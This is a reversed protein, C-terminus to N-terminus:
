AAHHHAPAAGPPHFTAHHWHQRPAADASQWGARRLRRAILWNLSGHGVFLVPGATALEILRAACRDARQRGETCSEVTEGPRGAARWGALWLLRFLVAWLRASLAPWRWGAAPMALERFRPDAHHASVGLAAASTLSRPLDSCVVSASAAALQRATAPPLSDAAIGAADYAAVWDAFGRASTVTPALDPRGHRLLTISM